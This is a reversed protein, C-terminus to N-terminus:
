SSNQSQNVQEVTVNSVGLKLDKILKSFGIGKILDIVTAGYRVAEREADRTYCGTTNFLGNDACRDM